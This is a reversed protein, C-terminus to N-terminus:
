GDEGGNKVDNETGRHGQPLSHGNNRQENKEGGIKRKIDRTELASHIEATAICWIGAVLALSQSLSADTGWVIMLAGIGALVYKTM